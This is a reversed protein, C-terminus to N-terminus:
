ALQVEKRSFVQRLPFVLSSCIGQKENNSPLL